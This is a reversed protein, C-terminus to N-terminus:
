HYIQEHTQQIENATEHENCQMKFVNSQEMTRKKRAEKHEHLNWTGGKYQFQEKEFVLM